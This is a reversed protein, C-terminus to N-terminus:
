CRCAPLRVSAWGPPPLPEGPDGRGSAFGLVAEAGADLVCGFAEPEVSEPGLSGSGMRVNGSGGVVTVTGAQDRDLVAGAARLLQQYSHLGSPLGGAPASKISDTPGAADAVPIGPELHGAGTM